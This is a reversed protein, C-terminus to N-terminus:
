VFWEPDTWLATWVDAQSLSLWFTAATTGGRMM